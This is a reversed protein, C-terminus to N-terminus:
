SLGLDIALTDQKIAMIERIRKISRGEHAKKEPMTDNM